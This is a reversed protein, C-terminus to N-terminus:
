IMADNHSYEDTQSKCKEIGTNSFIAKQIAIKPMRSQNRAPIDDAEDRDNSPVNTELRPNLKWGESNAL